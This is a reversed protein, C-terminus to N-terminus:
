AAVPTRDRMTWGRDRWAKSLGQATSAVNRHPTREFISEAATLVTAGATYREYAEAILDERLRLEARPPSVGDRKDASKRCQKCMAAHPAKGGGCGPCVKSRGDHPYLDFFGTADPRPPMGKGQGNRAAVWLSRRVTGRSVTDDRRALLAVLADRAIGQERALAGIVDLNRLRDELYAVFPEAAIERDRELSRPAHGRVYQIRRGWPDFRKIETGCDCACMERPVDRTTANGCRWCTDDNAAFVM